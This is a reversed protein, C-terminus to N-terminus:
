RAAVSDPPPINVLAALEARHRDPTGLAIASSKARKLYLHAPHEWTFGIGGHFQVCEEAAQQAVVSCLSQALAAAVPLDPSGTAACEAAYRAVARAQTIQVWLDAARHKIGQYSGIIRGFQRRMRLYELAMELCREALGLQESALLVAGIRLAAAVEATVHEGQALLEAAVGDFELDVLPRTMDLSVIETRTLGAAHASVRYVADGVPVLFVDAATADAVTAVTGYLKEDQVRVGGFSDGPATGFPLAVSAVEGGAVAALLEAQGLGQLLAVAIGASGLFPVPAVSRGLEEAVVATERWSAGAGGAEEDVALAACGIETTLTKWLELDVTADSETRALVADWPSRKDLLGRISDRLEEEIASYLLNGTSPTTSDSM